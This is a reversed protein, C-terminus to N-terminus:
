MLWDAECAVGVWVQNLLIPEVVDDDTRNECGCGGDGVLSEQAMVSQTVRGRVGPVNMVVCHDGAQLQM